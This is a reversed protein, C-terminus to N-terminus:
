KPPILVIKGVFDKKLFARQADHIKELPFQKAVVPKVQGHEVYDMLRPFIDGSQYTCGLFTLDKLYLQRLDLAVMPGAIAGSIAYRGGRRLVWLIDSWSGGTTVDGGVLDIVVDVSEEEMSERLSVHREIARAAGSACVLEGKGRGVLATVEAGRLTALQVAALGVGGSAGTVLVKDGRIVGSRQVLGEATSYACPIAALEADCLSSSTPYVEEVKIRVYQAYCGDMESGLCRCIWGGADQMANLVVRKELCDESVGEGVAVVVGCGDAGQIFPFSLVSGSWSRQEGSNGSAQGEDQVGGGQVGGGQVGRDQEGGQVEPAPDLNAELHAFGKEAGASTATVVSSDYWGSRTNIDTNNIAAASLKVLVEGARPQPVPLDDRYELKDLGGHGTLLVGAMTKPIAAPM